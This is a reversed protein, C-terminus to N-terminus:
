RSVCHCLHGVYLFGLPIFVLGLYPFSYVVLAFTGVVSLANSIIILVLNSSGQSYDWRLLQNWVQALRDDLMEIDAADDAFANRHM